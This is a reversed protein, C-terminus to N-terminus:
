QLLRLQKSKRWQTIHKIKTCQLPGQNMLTLLWSRGSGFNIIVVPAQRRKWLWRRVESKFYIADTSNKAKAVKMVPGDEGKEGRKQKNLAAGVDGAASYTINLINHHM